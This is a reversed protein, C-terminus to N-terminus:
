RGETWVPIARGIVADLPSPGYYRGDLSAAIDPVLVFLEDAALRRCGCWAALPRDRGDFALADAVHHGDIAVRGDQECVTAGGIAAVPKLLPVGRPLYGREAFLAASAPDPRFLVVDGVRLNGPVAVRYLGRPMSATANWVFLPRSPAFTGPM